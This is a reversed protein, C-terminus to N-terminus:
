QWVVVRERIWQSEFSALHPRAYQNWHELLEESAYRRAWVEPGQFLDTGALGKEKGAANVMVGNTETEAKAYAADRAADFEEKMRHWLSAAEAFIASM